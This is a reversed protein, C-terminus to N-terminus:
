RSRRRLKGAFSKTGRLFKMASAGIRTRLRGLRQKFEATHESLPRKERREGRRERAEEARAHAESRERGATVEINDEYSAYAAEQSERKATTDINDAYTEYNTEQLERKATADINEAYSDFAERQAEKEARERTATAEVNDAYTEYASDQTEKEERERLATADLNAQYTEYAADQAIKEASPQEEPEWRENLQAQAEPSLFGAAIREDRRKRASQAKVYKRAVWASFNLGRQKHRTGLVPIIGWRELLKVPGGSGGKEMARLAKDGIKRLRSRPDILKEKEATYDINEEYTAYADDQAEQTRQTDEEFAQGHAKDVARRELYAGVRNAASQLRKAATSPTREDRTDIGDIERVLAPDVDTPATESSHPTLTEAM